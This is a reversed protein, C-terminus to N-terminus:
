IIQESPSNRQVFLSSLSLCLFITRQHFLVGSTFASCMSSFLNGKFQLQLFYKTFIFRLSLSFNKSRMMCSAPSNPSSFTSSISLSHASNSLKMLNTPDPQHFAHDIMICFYRKFLNEHAVNISSKLPSDFAASAHFVLSFGFKRGAEQLNRRPQDTRTNLHHLRRHISTRHQRIWFCGRSFSKQWKQFSPM